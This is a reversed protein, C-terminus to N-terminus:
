LPSSDLLGRRRISTHPTPPGGGISLERSEGGRFSKSFNIQGNTCKDSARIPLAITRRPDYDCPLLDKLMADVRKWTDLNLRLLYLMAGIRMQPAPSHHLAAACTTHSFQTTILKRVCAHVCLRLSVCMCVEEDSQVLPADRVKLWPSSGLWGREDYMLGDTLRVVRANRDLYAAVHM